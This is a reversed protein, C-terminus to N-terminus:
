SEIQRGEHSFPMCVRALTYAPNNSLTMKMSLWTMLLIMSSM